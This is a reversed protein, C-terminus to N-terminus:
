RNNSLPNGCQFSSRKRKRDFEAETFFESAPIVILEQRDVFRDQIRFAEGRERHGRSRAFRDGSDSRREKVRSDFTRKVKCTGLAQLILEARIKRSESENVDATLSVIRATCNLRSGLKITIATSPSIEPAVFTRTM